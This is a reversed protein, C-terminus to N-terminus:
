RQFGAAGPAPFLFGDRTLSGVVLRPALGFAISVAPAIVPSTM